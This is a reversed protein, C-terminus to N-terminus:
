STKNISQNNKATVNIPFGELSDQCERFEDTLRWSCKNLLNCYCEAFVFCASANGPNTSTLNLYSYNSLGHKPLCFKGDYIGCDNDSYCEIKPARTLNYCKAKLESNSMYQCARNDTKYAANAYCDDKLGSDKLFECASIDNQYTFSVSLCLGRISENSILECAKVFEKDRAVRSICEDIEKISDKEYCKNLEGIIESYTYLRNDIETNSYLKKPVIDNESLKIEKITSNAKQFVKNDRSIQWNILVPFNEYDQCQLIDWKYFMIESDIGLELRTSMNALTYDITYNVCKVKTGNLETSFVDYYSVLGKSALKKLYNVTRNLNEFNLKYSDGFRKEQMLYNKTYTFYSENVVRTCYERTDSYICVYTINYNLQTNNTANSTYNALNIPILYIVKLNRLSDKFYYYDVKYITDNIKIEPSGVGIKRYFKTGRLVNDLVEEYIITKNENVTRSLFMEELEKLDYFKLSNNTYNTQNKQDNHNTTPNNQLNLFLLIVVLLALGIIILNLIDSLQKDKSISETKNESNDNAIKDKKEEEPKKEAEENM